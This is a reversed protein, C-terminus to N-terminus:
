LLRELTIGLVMEEKCAQGLIRFGVASLPELLEGVVQDIGAKFM